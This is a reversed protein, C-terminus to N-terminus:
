GGHHVRDHYGPADGLPDCDGRHLPPDGRDAASRHHRGQPRDQAAPLAPSLRLAHSVRLAPSLRLPRAYALSHTSPNPPPPTHPPPGPPPEPLDTHGVYIMWALDADFAFLFLDGRKVEGLTEWTDGSRVYITGPKFGKVEGTMRSVDLNLGSLDAYDTIETDFLQIGATLTGDANVETIVGVRNHYATDDDGSPTNAALLVVTYGGNEASLEKLLSEDAGSVCGDCPAKVVGDQYLLFLEHLIDEYERRQELLLEYEATDETGTLKFLSAGSWTKKGEKLYVASVTGTYAMAKWPSHVYLTGRGLTEGDADRVVVTEGISGYEDDIVVVAGADSLSHVTGSVTKGGSLEVSVQRGVSLDMAAVDVAMKGDLSIVALAGYETVVDRVSDGAAAYVAKIRGTSKATVLQDAKNEAAATIKKSLTDMAKNVQSIARMVSTKDVRAVPQGETVADGNKVLYETIEVGDPVTVELAEQETLTGTGSLTKTISGYSVTGSLISAKTESESSRMKLVFPAAVLAAALLVIIVGFVIRRGTHKKREM